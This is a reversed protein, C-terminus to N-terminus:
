EVKGKLINILNKCKDVIQTDQSKSLLKSVYEVILDVDTKSMSSPLVLSNHNGTIFGEIIDNYFYSDM